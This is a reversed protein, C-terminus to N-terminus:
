DGGGYGFKKLLSSSRSWSDLLAVQLELYVKKGSFREMALRAARGVRKIAAGGKGIVISKQSSKEVYIVARITDIVEKETFSEIKVDASYPLEDSFNDFVAERIMEKYIERITTDTLDDPDFYFPHNPLNAAIEKLLPKFDGKKASIPVIALFETSYKQYEALKELRRDHTFNDMKTLAAIHPKGKITNLFKEYNSVPDCIDALFLTLDGGEIATRTEKQMYLNLASKRDDLGPTDVFIIQSDGVMVIANQRKRTAGAKQSVLAIRENVMANILTSKGANPRGIVPM